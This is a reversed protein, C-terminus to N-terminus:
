YILAPPIKKFRLAAVDVLVKTPDEAGPVDTELIDVTDESM